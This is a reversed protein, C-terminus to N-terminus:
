KKPVVPGLSRIRKLYAAATGKGLSSNYYKKWYAARGPKTAPIPASKNGYTLRAAIAGHLANTMDQHGVTNWDIGTAALISEYKKKLGPHSAVDKTGALGTANIQFPGIDFKNLDMRPYTGHFSEAWATERLLDRTSKPDTGPFIGVVRSIAREVNNSTNSAAKVATLAATLLLAHKM